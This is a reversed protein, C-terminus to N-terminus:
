RLSKYSKIIVKIVNKPAKAIFSLTLYKYDKQPIALKSLNKAAEINENFLWGKTGTLLRSNIYSVINPNKLISSDKKSKEIILNISPSVDALSNLRKYSNHNHNETVGGTGRFYYSTVKTSIAVPYNLGIRAWYELDEGMKYDSFGGIENYVKKNICVSSSHIVTLDKSAEYFYDISKINSGLSSDVSLVKSDTNKLCVKTSVMGSLPYSEIIKSLENLHNSKWMDDADLLAIWQYKSNEFGKNRAAGVGANIQNIIRMRSDTIDKLQELSKDTSGDNIIILEFNEYNQSLVSDVARRIYKEKNYLPIVVTFM